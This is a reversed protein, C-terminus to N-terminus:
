ILEESITPGLFFYSVIYFYINQQITFFFNQQSFYNNSCVFILSFFQIQFLFINLSFLKNSFFSITRLFNFLSFIYMSMFCNIFNDHYFSITMGKNDVTRTSVFFVIAFITKLKFISYPKRFFSHDM